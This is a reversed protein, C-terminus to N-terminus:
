FSTRTRLEDQIIEVIAMKRQATAPDKCVVAQASIELSNEMLQMTPITKCREPTWFQMQLLLPLENGGIFNNYFILGITDIMQILGIM